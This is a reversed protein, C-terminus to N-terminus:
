STRPPGRASFYFKSPACTAAAPALSWLIASGTRASFIVVGSTTAVYVCGCAACARICCLGHHHGREDEPTEPRSGDESCTILASSDFAAIPAAAVAVAFAQLLLVYLAIACVAVRKALSGQRFRDMTIQLVYHPSQLPRSVSRTIAVTEAFKPRSHRDSPRTRPPMYRSLAWRLASPTSGHKAKQSVESRIPRELAGVYGVRDQARCRM